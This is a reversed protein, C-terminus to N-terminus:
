KSQENEIEPSVLPLHNKDLTTLVELAFLQASLISNNIITTLYKYETEEIVDLTLSVYIHHHQPFLPECFQDPHDM